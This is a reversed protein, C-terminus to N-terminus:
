QSITGGIIVVVGMDFIVMEVVTADNIIDLVSFGAFVVVIVVCFGSSCVM